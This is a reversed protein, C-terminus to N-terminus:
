RPSEALAARAIAQDSVYTIGGEAIRELAARLRAITAEHDKIEAHLRFVVQAAALAAEPTGRTPRSIPHITPSYELDIPDSM